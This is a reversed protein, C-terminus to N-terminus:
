ANLRIAQIRIDPEFVVASRHLISIGGGVGSLQIDHLYNNVDDHHKCSVNCSMIQMCNLKVLHLTPRKVRIAM